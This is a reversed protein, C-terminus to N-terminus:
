VCGEEMKVVVIKHADIHFLAQLLCTIEHKVDPDGGGQALVVIGSITPREGEKDQITLLVQVKGAGEVMPLVQNLRQEWFQGHEMEQVKPNEKKSDNGITLGKDAPLAIVLLLVGLLALVIYDEKKRKRFMDLCKEISDKM